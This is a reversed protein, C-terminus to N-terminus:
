HHQTSVQLAVENWDLVADASMLHRPEFREFLGQRKQLRKRVPTSLYRVDM